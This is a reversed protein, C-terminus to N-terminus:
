FKMERKESAIKVPTPRLHDGYVVVFFHVPVTRSRVVEKGRSRHLNM